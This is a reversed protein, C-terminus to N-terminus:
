KAGACIAAAIISAVVEIHRIAISDPFKGTLTGSYEIWGLLDKNTGFIMTDLFDAELVEDVARRKMALLAPRNALSEDEKALPNEEALYVRTLSSIETGLHRSTMDFDTNSYVATRQGEWAENRLGTQAEYRYRGDAASRLGITVWRLHYQGHILRTAEQVLNRLSLEPRRLNSLLTALMDCSKANPDSRTGMYGFQLRRVVASTDVSSPM